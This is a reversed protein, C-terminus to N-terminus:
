ECSGYSTNDVKVNGHTFIESKTLKKDVNVNQNIRLKNELTFINSNKARADSCPMYSYNPFSNVIVIRHM